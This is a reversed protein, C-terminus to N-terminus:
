PGWSNPPKNHPESCGLVLGSLVSSRWCSGKAHLAVCPLSIWTSKTQTLTRSSSRSVSARITCSLGRKMKSPRHRAKKPVPSRSRDDRSQPEVRGTALPKRHTVFTDQFPKLRFVLSIGPVGGRFTTYRRTTKGSYPVKMECSAFSYHSGVTISVSEDRCSQGSWPTMAPDRFLWMRRKWYWTGDSFRESLPNGTEASAARGTTVGWCNGCSASSTM